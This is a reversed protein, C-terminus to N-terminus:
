SCFVSRPIKDLFSGDLLCKFQKDSFSGGVSTESKPLNYAWRRLVNSNEAASSIIRRNQFTELRNLRVFSLALGKKIEAVGAKGRKRESDCM